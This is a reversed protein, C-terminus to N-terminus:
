IIIKKVHAIDFGLPIENTSPDVMIFRGFKVSYAQSVAHSYGNGNRDLLVVNSRIGIARYLATTFVAIGDCDEALKNGAAYNKAMLVPSTILEINGTDSVPDSIYSVHQRMWDYVSAIPDDSGGAAEIAVQRVESSVSAKRLLDSILLQVDGINYRKLIKIM